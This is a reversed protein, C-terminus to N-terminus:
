ARVPACRAFTSAAHMPDAWVHQGCLVPVNQGGRGFFPPWSGAGILPRSLVLSQLLVGKKEVNVKRCKFLKRRAELFSTWAHGIRQRLEDGFSGDANQLVGLHKCCRVMHPPSNERMVQIKCTDYKACGGSLIKKVERSGQGRIVCVAATKLPDFSLKLGHQAFADSLHGTETGVKAAVDKAQLSIVCAALDDAWVIDGLSARPAEESAERGSACPICLIERLSHAVATPECSPPLRHAEAM